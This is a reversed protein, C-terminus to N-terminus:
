KLATLGGTKDEYPDPNSGNSARTRTATHVRHTERENRNGTGVM